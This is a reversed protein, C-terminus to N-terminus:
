SSKFPFVDWLWRLFYVMVIFAKTALLAFFVAFMTDIPMFRDWVGLVDGIFDATLHWNNEFSNPDMPDFVPILSLVANLIGLLVVVLLDVIM